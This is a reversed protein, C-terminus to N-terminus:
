YIWKLETRNYDGKIWVFWAYCVVSSPYKEFEGNKACNMRKSYIYQKQLINQTYTRM